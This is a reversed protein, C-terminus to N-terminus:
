AGFGNQVNSQDGSYTVIGQAVNKWQTNTGTADLSGEPWEAQHKALRALPDQCRLIAAVRDKM